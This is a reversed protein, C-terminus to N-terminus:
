RLVVYRDWDPYLWEHANYYSVDSTYYVYSNYVAYKADSPVVAGSFVLYTHPAQVNLWGYGVAQSVTAWTGTTLDYAYATTVTGCPSLDARYLNAVPAHFRDHLPLAVSDTLRMSLFRHNDPWLRVDTINRAGDLPSLSSVTYSPFVTSTMTSVMAPAQTPSMARHSATAPLPLVVAACLVGVLSIIILQQKMHYTTGRLYDYM